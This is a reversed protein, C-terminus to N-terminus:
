GGGAGGAGVTVAVPQSATVSFSSQYVVGGAGGGGSGGGGGGGVVLVEVTGSTSPVFSGSQRFTHIISDGIRAVEGGTGEITGVFELIPAVNSMSAHLAAPDEISAYFRLEGVTGQFWRSNLERERGFRILDNVIGAGGDSVLSGKLVGDVYFRATGDGVQTDSWTLVMTHILGDIVSVSSPTSIAGNFFARPLGDTGITLGFDNPAGPSEANIPGPYQWHNGDSGTAGQTAKFLAVITVRMQTAIPNNVATVEFYDDVGDFVIGSSSASGSFQTTAKVPSGYSAAIKGGVRDVWNASGGAWDDAVWRAVPDGADLRLCGFVLILLGVLFLLIGKWFRCSGWLGLAICLLARGKSLVLEVGSQNAFKSSM